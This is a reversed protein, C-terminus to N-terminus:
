LAGGADLRTAVDAAPLVIRQDAGAVFLGDDTQDLALGAETQQGM